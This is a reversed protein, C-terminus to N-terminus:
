PELKQQIIDSYWDLKFEICQPEHVTFWWTIVNCRPSYCQVTTHVTVTNHCFLMLLSYHLAFICHIQHSSAVCFCSSLPLVTQSKSLLSSYHNSCAATIYVAFPLMFIMNPCNCATVHSNEPLVGFLEELHSKM